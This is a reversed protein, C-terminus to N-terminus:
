LSGCFSNVAAVGAWVAVLHKRFEEIELTVELSMGGVLAKVALM